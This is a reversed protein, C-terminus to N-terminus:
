DLDDIHLAVVDDNLYLTFDDDRSSSDARVTSSKASPAWENRPKGLHLQDEEKEADAAHAPARKSGRLWYVTTTQNITQKAM